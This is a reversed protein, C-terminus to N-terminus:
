KIKHYTHPAHLKTHQPRTMPELNEISNNKRNGDKHHLVIWPLLCCNYYQEYLVRHQLRHEGGAIIKCTLYGGSHNAIYGKYNPHDEGYRPTFNHGPLFRRLRVHDGKIRNDYCGRAFIGRCGCECEILFNKDLCQSCHYQIRM